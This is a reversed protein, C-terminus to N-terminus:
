FLFKTRMIQPESFACGGRPPAAFGPIERLDGPERLGLSLKQIVRDPAIGEAAEGEQLLSNRPTSIKWAAM